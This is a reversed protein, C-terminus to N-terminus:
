RAPCLVHLSLGRRSAPFQRRPDHRAARRARCSALRRGHRGLADRSVGATTIHKGTLEAKKKVLYPRAITQGNTGPERLVLTEYGPESLGENILKASDPHVLRIELYAAQELNTRARDKESDSLGPLQVLIRDDGEPQIIPEAVGLKDVRKRLVEVAQYLMHERGGQQAGIGNTNAALWNPDMGMLFSTGGQLDLGLHIKGAADQQLRNLIARSPKAENKAEPFQPFYVTIDNTSVADILNAFARQPNKQQLKDLTELINTYTADKRSGIAKDKFEQVLDRGIPPYMEIFSWAVVVVVIIFKWLNNRNM